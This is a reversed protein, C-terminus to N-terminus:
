LLLDLLELQAFQVVCAGLLLGRPDLVERRWSPVARHLEEQAQRLVGQEFECPRHEVQPRHQLALRRYMPHAKLVEQDQLTESLSAEGADIQHEVAARPLEEGHLGDRLLEKCLEVFMRDDQVLTVNKRLQLMGEDRLEERSELVALVKEQQQLVARSALQEKVQPLFTLERLGLCPEVQSLQAECQPMNVRLPYDVAVDLRLVDEEVVLAMDAEAVEAQALPEVIGLARVGEATRRLIHARLHEQLCAVVIAEVEVAQTYQEELQQDADRREVDLLVLVQHVPADEVLLRAKRPV